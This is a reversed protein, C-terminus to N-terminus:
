LNLNSSHEGFLSSQPSLYKKINNIAIYAEAGGVSILAFKPENSVNAVDGVAYVGEISSRYGTDVRIYRNDTVLPLSKFLNPMAKHGIAIILADIPIDEEEKSVNNFVHISTIGNDDGDIRKIETNLLIKIWAKSKVNLISNEAARLVGNHQLLKIDTAFPEIQAAYDFASDGGGVIAVRKKKFESPSKVTYFIGRGAYKDEGAVGLKNPVFYGVGSCILVTKTKYAKVGNVEIYFTKDNNPIIDTVNSNFKIPKKLMIAQEYMNKALENATTKPVGQVDYVLKEPYLEQMQGGYKGLGELTVSNINRLGSCFTAFLGAPGAGIIVLEVEEM